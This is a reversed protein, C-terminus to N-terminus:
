EFSGEFSQYHSLEIPCGLSKAADPHKPPPDGGLVSMAGRAANGRLVIRPDGLFCVYARDVGDADEGDYASNLHGGPVGHGCCAWEVGPLNAICPDMVWGPEHPDPVGPKGCFGCTAVRVYIAVPVVPDNDVSVPCMSYYTGYDRWYAGNAGVVVRWPYVEEFAEARDVIDSVAVM